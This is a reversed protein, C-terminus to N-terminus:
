SRSKKQKKWFERVSASIKERTSLDVKDGHMQRFKNQYIPDKYLKKLVCKKCSWPGLVRRKLYKELSISVARRCSACRATLKSKNTYKAPPHIVQMDYEIFDQKDIM